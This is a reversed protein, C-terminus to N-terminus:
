ENIRSHKLNSQAAKQDYEGEGQVGDELAHGDAERLLHSNIQPRIQNSKQVCFYYFVHNLQRPSYVSDDGKKRAQLGGVNPVEEEGDGRVLEDDGEADADLEDGRPESREEDDEILNFHYIVM